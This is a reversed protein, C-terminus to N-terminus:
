FVGEENLFHHNNLSLKPNIYFHLKHSGYNTYKVAVINKKRHMRIEKLVLIDNNHPISSYLFIPFPNLWSKVLHLFGEPYICNEYHSNDINITYGRWEIKEELSSVLKRMDGQPSLITLLSNYKRQNLLNGTGLSYSGRSNTLLWEHHQTEIFYNSM